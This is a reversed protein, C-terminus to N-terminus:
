SQNRIGVSFGIQTELSLFICADLFLGRTGYDASSFEPPLNLSQTTFSWPNNNLNGDVLGKVWRLTDSLHSQAEERQEKRLVQVPTVRILYKTNNM